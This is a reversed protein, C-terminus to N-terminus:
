SKLTLTLTKLLEKQAQRMAIPENDPDDLIPIKRERKGETM